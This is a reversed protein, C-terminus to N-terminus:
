LSKFLREKEQNITRVMLHNQSENM